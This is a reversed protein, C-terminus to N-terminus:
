KLVRGMAVRPGNINFTEQATLAHVGKWTTGDTSMLLQGEGTGFFRGEACAVADINHSPKFKTWVLGDPSSYGVHPASQTYALFQKGDFVVGTGMNDFVANSADTTRENSWTKGDASTMTFKSGVAVFVGNGFAVGSTDSKNPLVGESWAKGDYTRFTGGDQFVVYTQNGYATGHYHGGFGNPKSMNAFPTQAVWTSGDKSTYTGQNDTLISMGAGYNIQGGYSDFGNSSVAAVQGFKKGRDGSTWLGPLGIVSITGQAVRLNNVYDDGPIDHISFSDWTAGEDSSVIVRFHDGGALYVWKTCQDRIAPDDTDVPLASPCVSTDAADITIASDMPPSVVDNGPAADVSAPSDDSSCAVLACCLTLLIKDM